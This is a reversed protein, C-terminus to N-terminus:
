RAVPYEITGGVFFESDTDNTPLRGGIRLVAIPRGQQIAAEVVNASRDVDVTPLQTGRDIPSTAHRPRVYVVKTVLRDTLAAEIEDATIEIQIPFEAARGEPPHLRDVLEISPYIDVGPLGEIQSVRLRYVSGVEVAFVDDSSVTLGGPQSVGYVTVTAAGPTIVKVPQLQPRTPRGATMFHGYVGPPTQQNVPVFPRSPVNLGLPTQAFVSTTTLALIAFSATLIRKLM